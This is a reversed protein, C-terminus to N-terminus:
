SFNVNEANPESSAIVANSEDDPEMEEEETIRRHTQRQLAEFSTFTPEEEDL